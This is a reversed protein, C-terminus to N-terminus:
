EKSLLSQVFEDSACKVKPKKPQKKGANLIERRRVNQAYPNMRIMVGVNKLPNKKKGFIKIPRSPGAPRLKSQIEDSNIIRSIDSNSIVSSPLSFIFSM